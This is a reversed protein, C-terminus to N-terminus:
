SSSGGGNSQLYDVITTAGNAIVIGGTVKAVTGWEMKGFAAALGMVIIALVSIPRLINNVETLVSNATKTWVETGQANATTVAALQLGMVALVPLAPRVAAYAGKATNLHYSYLYQMTSDKM